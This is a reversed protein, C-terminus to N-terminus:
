QGSSDDTSVRMILYPPKRLDHGQNLDATRNWQGLSVYLAHNRYALADPWGLTAPDHLLVSYTGAPDRAVLSQQEYAGFYITGDDSEALGDNAPHQGRFRVASRIQDEGASFDSLTATDISYLDRGSLTTWFLTDSHKGLALGDVGGAPMTQKNADFTHPKGELFAMYGPTPSTAPQNILVERQKGSAIDVVILSYRTGFGSNAIYATGEKGHTLDVRLDNYHSDDRLVSGTLPVVHTVQNTQTNIGVVKAAGAPIGDAGKIKGDDIVWLTDKEDVWMGHPSVLWHAYDGQRRDNIRSDPYATLKGQKLETLAAASHDGGHRPFGVFVRDQSNVAIGSPPPLPPSIKGIVQAHPLESAFASHLTALLCIMILKKANM